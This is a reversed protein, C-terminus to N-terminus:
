IYQHYLQHMLMANVAIKLDLCAVERTTCLIFIWRGICPVHTSGQDQFIGYAVSCSLKHVVIVSAWTALARARRCSFDSCHSALASCSCGRHECCNSFVWAFCCLAALFLCIFNKFIQAHSRGTAQHPFCGYSKRSLLGEEEGTAGLEAVEPVSMNKCSRVHVSSNISKLFAM